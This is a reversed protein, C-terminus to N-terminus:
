DHKVEPTSGVGDKTYGTVASAEGHHDDHGHGHDDHGHAGHEWPHELGQFIIYLNRRSISRHINLTLPSNNTTHPPPFCLPPGFFIFITNVFLKKKGFRCNSVLVAM